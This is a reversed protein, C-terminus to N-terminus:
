TFLNHHRPRDTAVCPLTANMPGTSATIRVAAQIM